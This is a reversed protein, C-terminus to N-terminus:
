TGTFGEMSSAMLDEAWEKHDPDPADILEPPLICTRLREFEKKLAENQSVEEDTASELYARKQTSSM